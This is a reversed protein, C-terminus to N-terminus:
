KTGYTMTQTATFTGSLGVAGGATLEGTSELSQVWGEATSTVLTGAVKMAVDAGAIKVTAEGTFGFTARQEDLDTLTMTFATGAADKMAIFATLATGPLTVPQGKVFSTGGLVRGVLAPVGVDDALALAVQDREAAGLKAKSGAARTVAIKQTAEDLTVQYSNGALPSPKSAGAAAPQYVVDLATVVDGRVAGITDTWALQEVQDLKTPAAASGSGASPTITAALSFNSEVTRTSGVGRAQTPVTYSAVPTASGAASGAASGGGSGASGAQASGAQASGSGKASSGSSKDGCGLSVSGALLLGVLLSSRRLLQM